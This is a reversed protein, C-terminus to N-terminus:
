PLNKHETIADISENSEDSQNPKNARPLENTNIAHRWEFECSFQKPKKLLNKIHQIKPSSNLNTIHVLERVKQSM